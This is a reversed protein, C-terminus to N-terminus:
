DAEPASIDRIRNLANRLDNSLIPKLLYGAAGMVQAKEQEERLSCIIVPIDQTDPDAKLTEFIEWGDQDPFVLALTIAFPQYPRALEKVDDPEVLTIVQYDTGQLYRQYLLSVQIDSDVSLITLKDKATLPLSFSFTSGKGPASEVNIMGGHLDVLLRTISLGLGTGGTKRTASGDVQTFPEFLDAQSELPIGVGTDTVSIYIEPQGFSDLQQKASLTISGEDTFKAANSLLNLLIQRVRTPDAHVQPLTEVISSILKVPKDKVLGRATSLVSEFIETLDIEEFALEMKGAEIKSIDLIDNIMNLLHQGASYIASLDQQQQNTVPGDIGKMIVRSFGIISNLPTRLEHSMNALFQSKLKDLERLQEATERQEEYLRANQIAAAAQTALTHLLIIEEQAFNEAPSNRNISIVGIVGEPNSIPIMANVAINSAKFADRAHEQLQPDATSVTLPEKSEIVQQTLPYDSLLLTEGILSADDSRRPYIGSRTITNGSLMFLSASSAKATATMHSLLTNIVGDLTLAANLQSTTEQLASINKLQQQTQAYLEVNRLAIAVQSAMAMMLDVDSQTFNPEEPLNIATMTGMIQDRHLLPVVIIAGCNTEIRRQQAIENERPDPVDKPSLAAERTELVWGSLGGLLEKYPVHVVHQAGPGGELFNTVKENKTDFTILTVRNAPLQQSVSPVVTALLDRLEEVSLVSRSIDYLAETRGLASQTEEYLNANEIAVGIQQGVAQMLGIAAVPTNKERSFACLTGLIEARVELPVGLYSHIGLDLLGQVNIPSEITLDNLSVFEQQVYVLECLTGKLGNTKLIHLLEKPLAQHSILDLTATEKNYISILGSDFGTSALVQELVDALMNQLQLSHSAVNTINYLAQTENLAANTREFLQANQLAIASQRAIAVLLDQHHQTFMRPRQVNQTVIVGLVQDGILLPVGLWSQAPEGIIIEELDLERIVEDVNDTILLPVRSDIVYQTLGKTKKMPPIEGIEHNDIVLPFSLLEEAEDYLCVFFYTADMLRATYEHITHIIDQVDLQGGLQLSMENLTTLESARAQTQDFLSANQLANAVQDSMTQLATIDEDSFANAIESQITMAGIVEGRSRLPLAMESLTNPLIPNVFREVEDPALLSIRAEGSVICQGIMSAGGIELKHDRELQIRGAEGTGASLVSWRKAEDNLFIGVYYLDFRDRILNVTQILLPHTELISSAAQSVEAATFLQKQRAEIQEFLRTNQISTSAQALITEILRIENANLSRGKETIHLGVTGISEDAVVLPLLALTQTGVIEILRKMAPPLPKNQIDQIYVPSKTTITKLMPTNELPIISGSIAPIKELNTLSVIADIATKDPTILGITLYDVPLSTLLAQGIINLNEQMDLSSAVQSVINNILQLEETHATTEQFLRANQLSNAVQDAMTQLAAIDDESFANAEESQITMAGLIIGRSRLPLAMESLTNPLVPNIFREVEDPALLSIRADGSAVSQGIMSTGGIELKHGQALQIKGAEGTGARLMAWRGAEGSRSGDDDTLFIGAYYLNFRDRILNVTQEILPDTELISSAAQSVEAATQIQIAREQIEEILQEREQEAQKQTTIDRQVAVFQTLKNESNFIPAITLQAYYLEGNKRKNILEGRWAKGQTITEWLDKYFNAEQKGSKLVRPNNGFAEEATYGTVTTFASNVFVIDGKLDTIVVMDATSEVARGLREQEALAKQSVDFLRANEIATVTQAIITEVMQTENATFMRGEDQIGLGLTGIAEDQIVLPYIALAYIGLTKMTEHIPATLPDNQADEIIVPKKTTLAKESSPNGQVPIDMGISPPFAPDPNYDSVVKLTDRAANLLAFGTQVHLAEGMETTIIQLSEQLDLSSAVQAVVRNILALEEARSISEMFLRGNEVTIAATTAFAQFLSLDAETFRNSEPSRGALLIGRLEGKFMLPTGMLRKLPFHAPPLGISRPHQSVDDLLVTEGELIASLVGKGEPMGSLHFRELDVGTVKFFPPQSPDPHLILLGSYDVPVLDNVMAVLQESLRELDLEASIDQSAKHLRSLERARQQAEEYLRSNDFAVAAQTALTLALELEQPTLDREKEYTELEIVGISEGKLVIPLIILSLCDHARMYALEHPDANEDSAHIILPKQSRLVEATAPFDSLYTPTGAAFPTIEDSDGVYYDSVVTLTEPDTLLSISAESVRMSSIFQRVIIGALEELVLPASAISQSVSSITTLDRVRLQIEDFLSANRLMAAAQGALLQALNHASEEFPRNAQSRTLTLVGSVQNQWIMPAALAAHFPADAFSTAQGSWALYNDVVQLQKEAYARGSLGEGSKLRRGGMQVDDVQYTLALVLEKTAEDWVWLGGGDADLLEMARRTIIDLVANLDLQQQALEISIEHLTSMERARRQEAEFLQANELALSLQYAVEQALLREDESWDRAPTDDIIELLGLSNKLQFPVALTAPSDQTTSHVVTQRTDWSQQGAISYPSSVNTRQNDEIAIGDTLSFQPATNAAATSDDQLIQTFGRWGNFQGKENSTSFYHIRAPIKKGHPNHYIVSFEGQTPHQELQSQFGSPTEGTLQFTTLSEGIFDAPDVGLAQEVEPSCTLYRGYADCEWIWGLITEAEIPLPIDEPILDSFLDNLRKSLNNPDSM